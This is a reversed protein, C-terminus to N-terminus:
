LIFCKHLNLSVKNIIEAKQHKKSNKTLIQIRSFYKYIRKNNHNANFGESDVFSDEYRHKEHFYKLDFNEKLIFGGQDVFSRYSKRIFRHNM